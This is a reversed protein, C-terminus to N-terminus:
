LATTACGGLDTLARAAPCRRHGWGGTGYADASTDVFVEAGGGPLARFYTRIPDGEVTFSVVRLEAGTTGSRLARDFCLAEAAPVGGKWTTRTDGCSPLAARDRFESPDRQGELLAAVALLLVAAACAGVLRRTRPAAGTGLGGAYAGDGPRAERDGM